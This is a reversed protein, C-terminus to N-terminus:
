TICLFPEALAQGGHKGWRQIDVKEPSQPSFPPYPTVSPSVTAVRTACLAGLCRGLCM